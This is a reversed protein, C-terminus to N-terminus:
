GSRQAKIGALVDKVTDGEFLQESEVTYVGSGVQFQNLFLMTDIVGLEQILINKARQSLESLPQLVASMVNRLIAQDSTNSPM